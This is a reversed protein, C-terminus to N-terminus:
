RQWLPFATSMWNLLASSPFIDNDNAGFTNAGLLTVTSGNQTGTMDTVLWETSSQPTATLTASGSGFGGTWTITFTDGYAHRTSGLMVLAVVAITWGARIIKM